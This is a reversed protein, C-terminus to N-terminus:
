KAPSHFTYALGMGNEEGMKSIEGSSEEEERWKEEGYEETWV